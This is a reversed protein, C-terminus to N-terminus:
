FSFLGFFSRHNNLRKQVETEIEQERQREAQHAQLLRQFIEQRQEVPVSEPFQVEFTSTYQKM